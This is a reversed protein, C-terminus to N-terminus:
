GLLQSLIALGQEIEGDTISYPPLLRITNPGSSLLLLGCQNKANDARAIGAELLEWSDGEIDFGIM